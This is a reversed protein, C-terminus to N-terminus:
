KIQKVKNTKLNISLSKKQDGSYYYYDKQYFVQYDLNAECDPNSCGDQKTWCCFCRTCIGIDSVITKEPIYGGNPITYAIFEREDYAERPLSNLIEAAAQKEQMNKLNRELIDKARIMIDWRGDKAHELLFDIAGQLGDVKGTETVGVPLETVVKQAVIDKQLFVPLAATALGVAAVRFLKRRNINM